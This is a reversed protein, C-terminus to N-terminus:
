AVWCCVWPMLLVYMYGSGMWCPGHAVAFPPFTAASGATPNAWNFRTHGALLIGSGWTFVFFPLQLCFSAVRGVQLLEVLAGVGSSGMNAVALEAAATLLSSPPAVGLGILGGLLLGLSAPPLSGICAEAQALLAELMHPPPAHGFQAYAWTLQYLQEGSFTSLSEGLVQCCCCCCCCIVTSYHPSVHQLLAEHLEPASPLTWCQQQCCTTTVNQHTVRGRATAQRPASTQSCIANPYVIEPRQHVTCWPLRVINAFAKQSVKLVADLLAAPPRFEMRAFAWMAQCAFRAAAAAAFSAYALCAFCAVHLACTHRWARLRGCRRARLGPLLLLLLLLICLVHLACQAITVGHLQGCRSAHLGPLLLLLLLVHPMLLLLLLLLLVHPM